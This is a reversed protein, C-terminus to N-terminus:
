LELEKKKRWERLQCVVCPEFVNVRCIPCFVKKASPKPSRIPCADTVGELINNSNDITADKLIQINEDSFRGYCKSISIVTPRSVGVEDAIFRISQGDELRKKINLITELGLM